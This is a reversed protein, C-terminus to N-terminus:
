PDIATLIEPGNEDLFITHEFHASLSGDRTVVTWGDDLVDVDFRGMNVMPEIALALGSRLLVGRGPTGYNPVQPDEHMQRGIGHGVFDRVVSFGHAEVYSQVAYSIDGLHGGVVAAKIGQYLSQETVELLKASDEDPASGLFFSLAADGVFGEVTAGLDLSVLDHERLKRNGPIGHVVEHNVSVCVSAPYGHYGKFVPIAQRARIEREAIADLDRTTMGIEAAKKLIQLVEAVVRGANRMRKRDRESKLEIM